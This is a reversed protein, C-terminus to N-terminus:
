GLPWKGYGPPLPREADGHVRLSDAVGIFERRTLDGPIVVRRRDKYVTRRAM